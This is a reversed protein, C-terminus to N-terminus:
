WSGATSACARRAGGLSGPRNRLWQAREDGATRAGDEGQGQQLQGCERSVAQHREVCAHNDCKTLRKLRWLIQSADPAQAPLCDRCFSQATSIKPHPRSTQRAQKPDPRHGCCLKHCLHSPQPTNHHTTTTTPPPIPEQNRVVMGQVASHWRPTIASAFVLHVMDREVSVVAVEGGQGKQWGRGGSGFEVWCWVCMDQVEIAQSCSAAAVELLPMVHLLMLSLLVRPTAPCGHM